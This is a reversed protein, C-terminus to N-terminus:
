RTSRLSLFTRENNYLSSCKTSFTIVKLTRKTMIPLFKIIPITLEKPLCRTKFFLIISVPRFRSSKIMSAIFSSSSILWIQRGISFCKLPSKGRGVLSSSEISCPLTYLTKIEKSSSSRNSYEM